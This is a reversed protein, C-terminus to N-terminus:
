RGPATQAPDPAATRGPEKGLYKDFWRVSEEFIDRVNAPSQSLAHSEGWYRLLRATKGQRYLSYFFSEAQTMPARVDYEGHILLLPTDVRDVFALPSNRWYRDYDEYPPVGLTVPGAEALSWNDSKEHEIGPYGRATADFQTYFATLDTMGALAVAAKFRNTQTVLSYVSYGGFSQGMVGLRDPDAIGLEILRDVAPLAGKSIDLFLDNKQGDRKLPMSPILVVYGRAAYLQLNYIGPMYPDLFYDSELDRVRYGAYVWAITPYRRGAQYGPPLIVAAKLAEGDTSHYDILRPRGWDIAALHANLVLLDRSRGNALSTERLALGKSTPERWLAFGHTLDVDLLQAGRPLAFRRAAGTAGQLSVQKVRRSSDPSAAAVIIESTERGPDRPWVISGQGALLASSVPEFRRDSVDLLMLKDGAVTFFKGDKSRRFEQPPEPTGATLNVADSGPTLLWWDARPAHGRPSVTNRDGDVGRALLRRDDVWLVPMNTPYDSGAASSGVSLTESGIRVVSLDDSSAVFLPTAKADPSGRARLAVHRGDPSWGFLDLPYKAQSPVASWRVPANPAVDVFGLRKEVSWTDDPYPIRQGRAPSMAGVTALVAIRRGDPAIGLTLEGRFPYTPVTAITAGAGTEADITRLVASSAQEDPQLREAGSGAATVTPEVGDRLAQLTDGAHRMPRSYQDVLGSVSGPPLMVALLRRNDLWAFPAKEEDNCSHTITSGDAGGRLDLRYMPSGYRTQTMMAADGLRVLAGTARAWVYLRVNDGGRPENREPKTSLMALRSGDPSWTACWFGAAAKAGQTINRQEGTRRSILWVDSRSPDTEYSTRGYVEGSRAPRQVVAAVWEGDPSPAVRDIATLDLVDDITLPRAAGHAPPALSATLVVM